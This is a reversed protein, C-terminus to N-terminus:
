PPYPAHNWLLLDLGKKIRYLGDPTFDGLLDDPLLAHHLLQERREDCAAVHQQLAHRAQALCPQHAREGAHKVQGEAANLKRLPGSNAEM